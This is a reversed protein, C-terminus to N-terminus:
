SRAVTRKYWDNFEEDNDDLYDVVSKGGSAKRTPTAAKRAPAKEQIDAQKGQEKQVAQQQQASQLYADVASQYYDLDSQVQGGRVMDMTKMKMAIPAVIEYRGMKIEEHLGRILSPNKAMAQRSVSDWVEDVVKATVEFEKDKKIENVVDDIALQTDDKGYSKPVYEVKDTDLELPDVKTRKLVEAIAEKDGKLVDIMLNVDSDGLGSEQLASITKRWPALTQTKKTYDIGKSALAKLEDLTLDLEMDSAKIKYMESKQEEAEPEDETSEEVDESVDPEEEVSDTVEETPQESEEVTEEEDTMTARVETFSPDEDERWIREMEPDVEM